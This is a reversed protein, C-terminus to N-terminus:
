VSLIPISLLCGQVFLVYAGRVSSMDIFSIATFLQQHRNLKSSLKAKTMFPPTLLGTIKPQKADLYDAATDFSPNILRHQPTLQAKINKLNYYVAMIAILLLWCMILILIQGMSCM